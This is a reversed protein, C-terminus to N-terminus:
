STALVLGRWLTARFDGASQIVNAGDGNFWCLEGNTKGEALRRAMFSQVYGFYATMEAPTPEPQPPAMDGMEWIGFPKAPSAADALGAIVDLRRGYVFQRAYFDVAVKDVYADGPYYSEWEDDPAFGSANYALPYYRRVVPGYYRAMAVYASSPMGFRSLQPETWLTVEATLGARSYLRLTNELAALDDSTPPNWAPQFCLLAKIGRDILAAICPGIYDPFVGQHKFVKHAQIPCGTYDQWASIAQPWTTGAPFANLDM